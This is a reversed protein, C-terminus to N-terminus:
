DLCLIVQVEEAMNVIDEFIDCQSRNGEFIRPVNKTEAAIAGLNSNYVCDLLYDLLEQCIAAAPLELSGSKKYM